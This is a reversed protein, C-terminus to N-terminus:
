DEVEDPRAYGGQPMSNSPNGLKFPNKLSFGNYYGEDIADVQDLLGKLTGKPDRTFVTDINGTTWNLLDNEYGELRAGLNLWEPGKVIGKLFGMRARLERIKESKIGVDGIREFGELENNVIYDITKRLTESSAGHESVMRAAAVGPVQGLDIKNEGVGYSVPVFAGNNQAEAKAKAELAKVKAATEVVRRPQDVAFRVNQNGQSIRAAGLTAGAYIQATRLQTAYKMEEDAAKRAAEAARLDAETAGQIARMKSEEDTSKESELKFRQGVLEWAQARRYERNDYEGKVGAKDMALMQGQAGLARSKRDLSDKQADIDREIAREIIGMAVNQGRPNLAGAVGLSVAMAIKGWTPANKFYRTPDVSESANKKIEERLLASRQELEQMQQDYRQNNAQMQQANADIGQEMQPLISQMKKQTEMDALMKATNARQAAVGERQAPSGGTPMPPIGVSAPDPMMSASDDYSYGLVNEGQTPMGVASGFDQPPPAMGAFDPVSGQPLGGGGMPAPQPQPQMLAQRLWQDFGVPLM